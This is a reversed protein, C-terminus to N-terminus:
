RGTPENAKGLPFSGGMVDSVALAVEFPFLDSSLLFLFVDSVDLVVLM